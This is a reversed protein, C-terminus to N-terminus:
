GRKFDLDNLKGLIAYCGIQIRSMRNDPDNAGTKWDIVLDGDYLDIKGRLELWDALKASLFQETVPNLLKGCDKENGDKDIRFILPIQKNTTAEKEFKEHWERGQLLAPTDKRELKFYSKIADDYNGQSWQSLVSYSAQFLWM